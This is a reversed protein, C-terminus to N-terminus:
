YFSFNPETEFNNKFLGSGFANILLKFLGSGFANILLKFTIDM